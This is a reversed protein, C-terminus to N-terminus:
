AGFEDDLAHKSVVWFKWYTPDGVNETTAHIQEASGNSHGIYRPHESVGEDTACKTEHLCLVYVDACREPPVHEVMEGTKADWCWRRPAINFIPKSPQVQYWTQCFGSAKVEVRTTGYSLDYSDWELRVDGESIIGLAQGVLWEAFIGRNRNEVLNGMAWSHFGEIDLRREGM